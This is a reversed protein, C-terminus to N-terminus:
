CGMPIAIAVIGVDIWRGDVQKQIRLYVSSIRAICAGDNPGNCSEVLKILEPWDKEVRRRVEKIIQAKTTKPFKSYDMQESRLTRFRNSGLSEL